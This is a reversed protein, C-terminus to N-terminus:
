GDARTGDYNVVSNESVSEEQAAANALIGTTGGALLAALAVAVLAM